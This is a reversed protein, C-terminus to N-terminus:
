IAVKLDVIGDQELRKLKNVIRTQIKRGEAAAKAKETPSAMFRSAEGQVMALLKGKCQDLVAQAHQPQLSAALSAIEKPGLEALMDSLFAPDLSFIVEFTTIRNQVKELLEANDRLVQIVTEKQSAVPSDMLGAFHGVIKFENRVEEEIAQALYNLTDEAEEQTLNMNQQMAELILAQEHNQVMPFIKKCRSPSILILGRACMDIDINGFIKALFEDTNSILPALDLSSFYVPRLASEKAAIRSAKLIAGFAKARPINSNLMKELPEIEEVPFNLWLEEMDKREIADSLYVFNQRGSSEALWDRLISHLIAPKQKLEEWAVTASQKLMALGAEGEETEVDEQGEKSEQELRAAELLSGGIGQIAGSINKIGADMATMKQNMRKGRVYQYVVFGFTTLLAILLLAIPLELGALLKRMKEWPTLEKKGELQNKLFQIQRKLLEMDRDLSRNRAELQNNRVQEDELKGKTVKVEVESTSLKKEVDGLKQELEKMKQTHQPILDLKSITISDGRSPRLNFNQTVVSKIVDITAPRINQDLSLNIKISNSNALYSVPRMEELTRLYVRFADVQTLRTKSMISTRLNDMATTNISIKASVSYPFSILSDILSRVRRQVYAETEAVKARLMLNTAVQMNAPDATNIRNGIRDRLTARRSQALINPLFLDLLLCLM